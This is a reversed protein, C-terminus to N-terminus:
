ARCTAAPVPHAVQVAPRLPREQLHIAGELYEGAVVVQLAVAQLAVQRRVRAQCNRSQVRPRVVGEPQAKEQTQCQAGAEAESPRGAAPVLAAAFTRAVRCACRFAWELDGLVVQLLDADRQAM